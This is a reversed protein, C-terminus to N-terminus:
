AYQLVQVDPVIDYERQSVIIETYGNWLVYRDIGHPDQYSALVRFPTQHSKRRVFM